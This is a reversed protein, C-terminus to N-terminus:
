KHITYESIHKSLYKIVWPELYYDFYYGYSSLSGRGIFHLSQLVTTNAESMEMELSYSKSNYMSIVISIAEASLMEFRKRCAKDSCFQAKKIKYYLATALIVVWISVCVVFAIGIITIFNNRIKLLGIKGLLEDPVFLLSAVFITIVALIRKYPIKSLLNDPAKIDFNIAM